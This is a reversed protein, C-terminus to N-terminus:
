ERHLDVIADHRRHGVRRQGSEDGAHRDDHDEVPREFRDARADEVAKRAGDILPDRLLDELVQQVNLQVRLRARQPRQGRLDAAEFGHALEKGRGDHKGEHIQRERQHEQGKDADDAAGDCPDVRQQQRRRQQQAEDVLPSQPAQQALWSERLLSRWPSSTSLMRPASDIRALLAPQRKALSHCSIVALM